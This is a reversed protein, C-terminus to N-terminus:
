RTALRDQSARSIMSMSRGLVRMRNCRLWNANCHVNFSPRRRLVLSRPGIGGLKPTCSEFSLSRPKFRVKWMQIVMKAMVRTLSESSVHDLLTELTRSAATGFPPEGKKVGLDTGLGIEAFSGVRVDDGGDEKKVTHQDQGTSPQEAPM